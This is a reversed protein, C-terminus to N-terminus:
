PRTNPQPITRWRMRLVRIGSYEAIGDFHEKLAADM